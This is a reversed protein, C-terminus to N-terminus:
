QDFFVASCSAAQTFMMRVKAVSEEVVTIRITFSVSVDSILVKSSNSSFKAVESQTLCWIGWEDKLIQMM